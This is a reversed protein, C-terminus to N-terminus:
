STFKQLICISYLESETRFNIGIVAIRFEEFSRLKDRKGFIANWCDGLKEILLSITAFTRARALHAGFRM